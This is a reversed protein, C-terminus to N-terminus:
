PDMTFSPFNVGYLFKSKINFKSVKFEDTFVIKSEDYINSFYHERYSTARLILVSNSVNELTKFLKIVFIALYPTLKKLLGTGQSLYPTLSIKGKTIERFSTM